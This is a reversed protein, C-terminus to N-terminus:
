GNTPVEMKKLKSKDIRATEQGDLNTDLAEITFLVGGILIAVALIMKKTKM